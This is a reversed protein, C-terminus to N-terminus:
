CILCRPGICWCGLSKGALEPLAALLEPRSEVHERYATLVRTRETPTEEKMRFPNAWKSTPLRWGGQYMARGVYVDCGVVVAGGKRRLHVVTPEAAM